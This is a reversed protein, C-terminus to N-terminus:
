RLAANVEDEFAAGIDDMRYGLVFSDPENPALQFKWQAM